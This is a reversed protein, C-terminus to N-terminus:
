IEAQTGKKIKFVDAEHPAMKFATSKTKNVLSRAKESFYVERETDSNNLITVYSYSTDSRKFSLIDRDLRLLEFDGDKYVNNERRIQGILRYHDILDKNEKGWPYTRRNFPDSYGQMGAEDGYYISPIGPITALVTYASKLLAVGLKYEKKTMRASLLYTNSRGEPSEGALATIARMTDHSGILNMQADRIRKPANFMVETLSYELEETAKNRLYSILGSRVTYNMVGDLETGLYYRKRKDYAIKNSADEWVEGYLISIDNSRNLTEKISGIFDDSLEDAVDLRFGTIGMKSCKSIVGNKGSIYERCSKIDPNIRPLIEIGWWSTYDDPYSKFDFWDYYPSNKVNYAGIAPYKGFKNFYISDAGTHNFVGDLIIGIGHEKASDILRKLAREGGFMKDITMYDATDYKHNSPSDFIPSLYIHTVGLSSLYDLKESIGSLSGGYFYNNKLPAGPYEPYEPIESNWDDVYEAGYKLPYKRTKNFRDVFIHYIIGGYNNEPAKYKFDSVTIQIHNSGDENKTFKLIHNKFETYVKGVITKLELHIFYLGVGIAKPSFDISYIDYEFYQDEWKAFLDETLRETNEACIFYKLEYTGLSRPLLIKIKAKDAIQYAGSRDEKGNHIFIIRGIDSLAEAESIRFKHM